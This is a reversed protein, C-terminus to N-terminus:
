FLIVGDNFICSKTLNQGNSAPVFRQEGPHDAEQRYRDTQACRDSTLAKDKRSSGLPQQQDLETPVHQSKRALGTNSLM